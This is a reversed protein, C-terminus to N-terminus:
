EWDGFLAMILVVFVWLVLARQIVIWRCDWKRRNRAVLSTLIPPILGFVFFGSLMVYPWPIAFILIYEWIPLGGKWAPPESASWVEQLEELKKESFQRLQMETDIAATIEMALGEKKSLSYLQYDNLLDPTLM